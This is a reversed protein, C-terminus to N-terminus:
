YHVAIADGNLDSLYIVEISNVSIQNQLSESNRKFKQRSEIRM